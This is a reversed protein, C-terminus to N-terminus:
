KENDSRRAYNELEVQTEWLAAYCGNLRILEDHKGQEKVKGNELCYICDAEAVNALRHTIM